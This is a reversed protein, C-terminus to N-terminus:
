MVEGHVERRHTRSGAEDHRGARHDLPVRVDVHFQPAARASTVSRYRTTGTSCSGQTLVPTWWISPSCSTTNREVQARAMSSELSPEAEHSRGNADITTRLTTKFTGNVIIPENSCPNVDSFSQVFDYSREVTSTAQAELTAPSASFMAGVVLAIWSHRM